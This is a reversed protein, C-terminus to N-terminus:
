LDTTLVNGFEDVTLSKRSHKKPRYFVWGGLWWFGGTLVTLIILKVVDNKEFVLLANEDTRSEVRGGMAVHQAVANALAQRLQRDSLQEDPM